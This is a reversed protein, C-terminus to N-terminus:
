VVSSTWTHTTKLPQLKKNYVTQSFFALHKEGFSYLDFGLICHSFVIKLLMSMIQSNAAQMECLLKAAIYYEHLVVLPKNKKGQHFSGHSLMSPM